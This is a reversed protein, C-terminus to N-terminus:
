DTLRAVLQRAAKEAVLRDRTGLSRRYTRKEFLGRKVYPKPYRRVLMYVGNSRQSLLPTKRKRERL